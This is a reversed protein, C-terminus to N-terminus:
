TYKKLIKNVSVYYSSGFLNLHVLLYYLQWIDLRKKWSGQLPFIESYVNFLVESFGGFLHMMAIDMERHSYSVSPDILCARGHNDVIYNGSWLDGHILSASEKPINEELKKFLTSLNKFSYGNASAMKFQPELRQTIYFESASTCWRNPQPLSGIYNSNNFGFNKNTNQHLVAMKKGFDEWFNEKETGPPIYELVMYAIDNYSDVLIVKPINLSHSSRLTNLGEKEAKFMGPFATASNVKVVFRANDTEILFVNNIDGGSLPTSNFIKLNLNAEIDPIIHQLKGPIM